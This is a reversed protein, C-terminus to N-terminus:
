WSGLARLLSTKKDQHAEMRVIVDSLTQVGELIFPGKNLMVCEARDAMAADTLEARTPIGTKVLSELVQTAWIVPVHAAECLWLMEEQMEALREYGIEVALDGRAIMVGFPRRAAGAVVLDPLQQVGRQTEIKAVIGVHGAGRAELAEILRDVDAAEQAFSLGVLDAVEAAVDLAESDEASTGRLIIPTDPFNMGEDSRLRERSRRTVTVRLVAEGPSVSEVLSVVHGDDIIVRHGVGLAELVAPEPCAIAPLDADPGTGAGPIPAPEAVLRVRDGVAVEISGPAAAFPGVLTSRSGEDGAVRHVLEVGEELAVGSTTALIVLGAGTRTEVRLVRERGRADLCEVLDGEALHALWDSDVAVVPMGSEPDPEVSGPRGSGDLAVLSPPQGPSVKRWRLRARRGPLSAIRLKPGPLDILIRCPRGTARSAERVRSALARWTGQDDHASNIRAIDMGQGVLRDVLDGGLAAEGPLTVMIRTFRQGPQPGLLAATRESLLRRQSARLRGLRELRDPEPVEGLLADLALSVSAIGARVNAELRGLSSLGLTALDDQIDRVDHHRFALYAALNAASLAYDTGAVREHWREMREHEGRRVDAELAALRARLDRLSPHDRQSDMSSRM